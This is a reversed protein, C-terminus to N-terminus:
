LPYPYMARKIWLAESIAKPGVFIKGDIEVKTLRVVGGKLTINPILIGRYLVAVVLGPGFKLIAKYRPSIKEEPYPEIELVQFSVGNVQFVDGVVSDGFNVIPM